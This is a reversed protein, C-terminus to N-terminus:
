QLGRFFMSGGKIFQCKAALNEFMKNSTDDILANSGCWIHTCGVNQAIKVCHELLQRALETGRYPERVYFYNIIAQPKAFFAKDISVMAIAALCDKGDVVWCGGRDISQTFADLTNPISLKGGVTSEDNYAKALDILQDMDHLDAQRM